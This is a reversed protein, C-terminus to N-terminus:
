VWLCAYFLTMFILSFFAFIGASMKSGEQSWLCVIWMELGSSYRWALSLSPKNGQGDIRIESVRKARAIQTRQLWPSTTIVSCFGEMFFFFCVFCFCVFLGKQLLFLFEPCLYGWFLGWKSSTYEHSGNLNFKRHGRWIVADLNTEKNSM